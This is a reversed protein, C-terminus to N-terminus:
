RASSRTTRRCTASERDRREWTTAATWASSPPADSQKIQTVEATQRLLPLRVMPPLGALLILLVIGLATLRWVLVRWSPNARGLAAHSLWALALLLTIKIVLALAAIAPGADSRALSALTSM